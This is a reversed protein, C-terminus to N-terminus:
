ESFAPWGQIYDIFAPGLGQSALYDSSVPPSPLTFRPDAVLRQPFDHVLLAARGLLVFDAGADLCALATRGDRVKGAVGLKVHGRDFATFRDLLSRADGDDSGKAVDWLSMDLYDIQGAACFWRATEVMDATTLGYREASLRLGLQFDAGCAARIGAIIEEVLRLRNAVSGGYADTRRNAEASLFQCLLFGHAGHLEVGDFGAAEARRAAYVFDNRIQAIEEIRLERAGFEADHSPAVPQRARPGAHYLQVASVGGAARIAGALRALGWLQGDNAVGIEGPFCQGDPHVHSASTLILGFGGTARMSLWRLEDDSITGDARNQKNTMPAMALRNELMPGRAFALPEFLRKLDDM